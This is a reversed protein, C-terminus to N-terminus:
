FNLGNSHWKLLFPELPTSAFHAGLNLGFSKVVFMEFWRNAYNEVEDKFRKMDEASAGDMPQETDGLSQLDAM